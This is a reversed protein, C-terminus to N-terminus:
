LRCLSRLSFFLILFALLDIIIKSNSALKSFRYLFLHSLFTFHVLKIHTERSLDIRDLPVLNICSSTDPAISFDLYFHVYGCKLHVLVTKWDKEIKVM